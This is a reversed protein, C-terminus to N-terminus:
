TKGEVLTNIFSSISKPTGSLRRIILKLDAVWTLWIPVCDCEIYEILM